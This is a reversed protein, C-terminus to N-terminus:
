LIGFLAKAFDEANFNKLDEAKEGVGIAYVPLKFRESLAVVVGGRASGDLKTIVLGTLPIAANFQEVQTLANQGITADLTLLVQHPADPIQKQIVRKIKALEEMLNAKTHLRGATDIMVIDANEKQATQIAEFAVAASDINLGKAIVTSGTREGWLQLQEVAAARFTDGAALVIKKGQASFQQALKGITTTKGSGNVGIMLLVTPRIAPDIALPKAVPRLITTIQAALATKVEQATVEKGFRTSSFEEVLRSALVPGIDAEILIEELKDLGSQDLPYKTVADVLGQTLKQSSQSLGSALRKTWSKESDQPTDVVVSVLPQSEEAKETVANSDVKDKKKWFIM